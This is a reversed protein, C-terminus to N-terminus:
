ITTRENNIDVDSERLINRLDEILSEEEETLERELYKEVHRLHTFIDILVSKYRSANYMNDFLIVDEEKDLDFILKAKM